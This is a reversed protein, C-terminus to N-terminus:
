NSNILLQVLANAGLGVLWNGWVKRQKVKKASYMYGRKYEMNQMLERNPYDLNVDNPYTASVAIAPILGLIPSVLSAALVGGKGSGHGSYYVSGDQKGKLYMNKNAFANPSAFAEAQPSDFVDKTGNEYSISVLESKLIVFLPGNLNDFKKYKIESPNVEIVKAKVTELNKKTIIDQATVNKSLIVILFLAFQLLKM